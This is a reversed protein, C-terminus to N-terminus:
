RRDFLESEPFRVKPRDPGKARYGISMYALTKQEPPNGLVKDVGDPDFGEMPCADIELEMAAALGFGLAIYTQRAAWALEAGKKAQMAGHMMGTYGAMAEKAAADGSTALEVYEDVRADINTRAQFILVHSADTVQAQGYSVEKLKERLAPDTVVTVHFPQTGYSTPAMRIAHLIKALDDESVKKSPDFAKTAFRWDLQSLFTKSM